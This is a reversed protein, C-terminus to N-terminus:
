FTLSCGVAFLKPAPYDANPYDPDLGNKNARWLIGLNRAYGFLKLQHLGLKNFSNPNFSYSISVDQLRVVDGKTILAESYLYLENRQAPNITPAWAPVDTLQEDGPQEWRRFYDMHFIQNITTYEQGSAISKRRFVHGYKFSVLASAEFGKYSFSNRLSGFALPVTSGAIVLNEVPFNTFYAAYQDIDNTLAGEVKILPMGNESSLGYWPFAYINDVSEGSVIPNRYLYDSLSNEPNNFRTVKNTSVSTLLTTGWSFVGVINRSSIQFDWGKTRLHGYNMKYISGINIGTTPDMMNEGLLHKAHKAYYEINASIRQSKSRIDVGINLTNVQEWRLSPNGPHMVNSEPLGTFQNNGVSITPYYSQSKDINGASGYTFRFRMYPITVRFPYFGEKSMEWSSGLSWLVTGRQNTKVGLLNSGDWRVSGSLIYKEFFTHSANGFYSLYRNTIKSPSFSTNPIQARGTPKVPFSNKYDLRSDSRWVDKDFNYLTQGSSTISVDQRIDAGVLVALRQDGPLERNLDLQIRGYHRQIESPAAYELIGGYPIVQTGDDQTFRNVLNRVHYSEKDYLQQASSHASIYQYTGQFRLGQLFSYNIGASLQLERSERTKNVLHLEELPRYIWDVLGTRGAEERFSSRYVSAFSAASGDPNVLREYVSGMPGLGVTRYNLGNNEWNQLTYRLGGTVELGPTLKFTNQLNFNARNNSNYKINALNKDYGGSIAYRYADSGGQMNIVYQQVLGTQYLHTMAQKRLDTNRFLTEEELFSNQDVLNDRQKILLEVYPPLYTQDNEPYAGRNFLEKQIEMVTQAPLWSQNYELDPRELFSFNSSFHVQSKQNFKGQKTTIVIVGNGARAGWISAAAADKLVTVSEVMGPNLNNIDGEYPFNDVVILPQQLGPEISSVGRIRLAPQAGIDEGEVNRRDFLLTGTVGELRDLVNLGVSRNLLANDIMEFSGTAREKPVSYYGTNVEVEPLLEELAKLRIHISGTDQSRMILEQKEYGIHSVILTDPPSPIRISFRGDAGTTTRIFNSVISVGSLAEGRENTVTGNCDYQAFSRSLFFLLCFLIAIPTRM